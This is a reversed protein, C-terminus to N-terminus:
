LRSLRLSGNPRIVADLMKRYASLDAHQAQWADVYRQCAIRVEKFDREDMAQFRLLQRIFETENELPIDAGVGAAMLNKWPTRDSILVPLGASLAELISYGFNEGLTPMLMLDYDQLVSHMKEHEVEGRYKVKVNPLCLKVQNECLFWYEKNELPGWLDFVIEGKLQGVMRIAALTNKMPSIRAALVVKLEGNNKIKTRRLKKQKNEPLNSALFLHTRDPIFVERIRQEEITSSAHWYVYSYYKFAKVLWLYFFKRWFKLRLAGPLLEGHPSLLVPVTKGRGVALFPKISFEKDLLSNLYIMDPKIENNLRRCLFFGAEQESVFYISSNGLKTWKGPTINPYPDYDGHDRNLCVIRFDYESELAHVFNSLYRVPGGSRFGPLYHRIYVLVIPKLHNVRINCM